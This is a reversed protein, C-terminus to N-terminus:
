GKLGGFTLKADMLWNYIFNSVLNHCGFTEEAVPAIQRSIRFFSHVGARVILVARM